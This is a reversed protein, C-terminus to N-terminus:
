IDKLVKRAQYILRMREINNTYNRKTFCNHNAKGVANGIGHYIYASSLIPLQAVQSFDKIVPKISDYYQDGIQYIHEWLDIFNQPIEEEDHYSLRKIMAEDVNYADLLTQPLYIRQRDRYDEGVDRLINTLQMGIGLDIAAQRLTESIPTDKDVLLPLLMEGVSGAVNSSYAVLDAMDVVKHGLIDMRQGQIQKLLATTSVKCTLVTDKFAMWWDVEVDESTELHLIKDELKKLEDLAVEKSFHDSDAVDDVYRNYAYLAAVGQFAERPLLHFAQYFSKSEKAMINECALYSAKLVSNTSM